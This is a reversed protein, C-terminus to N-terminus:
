EFTIVRDEESWRLTCTLTTTTTRTGESDHAALPDSPDGGTTVTETKTDTDAEGTWVVKLPYGDGNETTLHMELTYNGDDAGNKVTVDVPYLSEPLSPSDTCTSEDLHVKYKEEFSLSPVIGATTKLDDWDAQWEAPICNELLQYQYYDLTEGASLAPVLELTQKTPESHLTYTTPTTPDDPEYWWKEEEVYKVTVKIPNTEVRDKLQSQFLELASAVSFYQRQEQVLHTYRGVNASAASLAVTGALVCMVFILLAFIMSAGCSSKLKEYIHKM